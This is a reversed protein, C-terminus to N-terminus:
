TLTWEFHMIYAALEVAQWENWLNRLAAGLSPDNVEPVLDGNYNYAVDLKRTIYV